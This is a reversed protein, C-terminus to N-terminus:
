EYVGLDRCTEKTEEIMDEKSHFLIALVMLAIFTPARPFVELVITYLIGTFIFGTMVIRYPTEEELIVGYESEKSKRYPYFKNIIDELGRRILKLAKM